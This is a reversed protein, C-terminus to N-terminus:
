LGWDSATFTTKPANPVNPFFEFGTLDELDKVSMLERYTVAQGNNDPNQSRRFAVCKLEDASCEKVSKGTSGTKTRLLAVYMMTPIRVGSTSMYTQTSPEASRGYGDTYSEFYNGIVVYLTDSCNFGGRGKEGMTYDELNNWGTGQGNMYNAQPAINTTYFVQYNAEKSVQRQNSALMHGRNYNSNGATTGSYQIDSPMYPNKKYNNTRGSNGDYCAHLAAAVWVPCKYESSWCCTYNRLYTNTGSYKVDTWHHTYYLSGDTYKGYHNSNDVYYNGGTTYHTYDLAPLEAWDLANSVPSANKTTFNLISGTITQYQNTEPNWVDMSAQFHYTQGPTLGSLQWSYTGSASSIDINGVTQNLNSQSTGYKFVVNQPFRTTSVGSYSANLVAGSTTVSSAAVTSLSANFTEPDPDDGGGSGSSGTLKYLAIPEQSQSKYYRFRNGSSTNTNFMLYCDNSSKIVANGSSLSITNLLGSDTSTKLSNDKSETGIYYGSTSKITYNSGSKAITFQRAKNYDTAEIEGDSITVAFNNGSADLTTLSGDFAKSGSEYVILYDGSWDSPATTVKQYVEVEEVPPPTCNAMNIGLTCHANAKFTKQIGTISRTYTGRSTVLTVDLSTITVPLICAWFELNGSSFSLNDGKVTVSNSSGATATLAGTTIDLTHTGTLICGDQATLTVSTVTEGETLDKINKLTIDAHSVLRTWMLPVAGTPKSTYAVPSTGVMLDAKSDFSGDPPMQTGPLNASVKGLATFNTGCVSSPYVTYFSYNGTQSGTFTTPVTFEATEGGSTLANSAYIKASSYSTTLSGNAGAWADDVKFAMRIMDGKSWLITGNDYVTKTEAESSFIFTQGEPDSIEVLNEPFLSVGEPERVECAMFLAMTASLAFLRNMKMM